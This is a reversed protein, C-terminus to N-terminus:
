RIGFELIVVFYRALITCDNSFIFENFFKKQLRVEWFTKCHFISSIALSRIFYLYPLKLQFYNYLCFHDSFTAIMTNFM